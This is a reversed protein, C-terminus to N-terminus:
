GTAYGDPQAAPNPSVTIESLRQWMEAHRKAPNGLSYSVELEKAILDVIFRSIHIVKEIDGYTVKAEKLAAQFNGALGHHAIRHHRMKIIPQALTEAKALSSELSARFAASVQLTSRVESVLRKLSLTNKTSDYLKGIGLITASFVAYRPVALAFSHQEFISRIEPSTDDGDYLWWVQWSNETWHLIEYSRNLLEDVVIM